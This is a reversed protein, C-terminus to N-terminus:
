RADRQMWVNGLVEGLSFFLENKRASLGITAVTGPVNSLSRFLRHFHQVAYAKGIPRKTSADLRRGWICRFGDRDGLFFITDDNASWVSERDMHSGETISIRDQGRLEVSNSRIPIAFITRVDHNGDDIHYSVWKGDHSFAAAYTYGKSEKIEFLPLSKHNRWEMLMPSHDVASELLIVTGDFSVDTPVGCQDCLFIPEGFNGDLGATMVYLRRPIELYAITKGDGSIKPQSEATSGKTLQTQKGSAMERLWIKRHGSQESAFAMRSSDASISPFGEFNGGNTVKEPEGDAVGNKLGVRWVRTNVTVSSFAIVGMAASPQIENNTGMTRRRPVLPMKEGDLPLGIEWINVSDALKAAFLVKSGYFTEPAIAFSSPPPTLKRVTLVDLVGTRVASGGNIPALWWDRESGKQGLFLIGSGDPNWVPYASVGFEPQFSKAVGGSAPAIMVQASGSLFGSGIQGQWFALWRGDPSFRPRRGGRAILTSPGGSVSVVYIGGGERESRFVLKSGDPSFSPETEDAPDSTIRVPQAGKEVQRVWIDLNGAEGRDSSYALLSGNSSLAPVGGFGTDFTLKVLESEKSLETKPTMWPPLLWMAATAITVAAAAATAIWVRHVKRSHPAVIEKASGDLEAIAIDLMPLAEAMKQLRYERKKILCQNVLAVLVAPTQPNLQALEPPEVNVVQYLVSDLGGNDFARNGSVMEYLISGFSFIDTREDTPEGRAQEPSMYPPTGTIQTSLTEAGVSSPGEKRVPSALGFDLVKVVGDNTVMINTPKLDRHVIGAAHAKAIAGATQRAFELLKPLPTRKAELVQRLTTGDVFEMAIFDHSQDTGLEYITVINPHNLASAAKAERAFQKEDPVLEESPPRVKLAVTRDLIKDLGKYVVASGGEGIKELIQYHGIESPLPETSDALLGALLPSTSLASQDIMAPLASAAILSEVESRLTADDGCATDLFAKRNNQPAELADCLIEKVKQWSAAESQQEPLEM